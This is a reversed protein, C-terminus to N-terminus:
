LDSETKKAENPILGRARRAALLADEGLRLVPRKEHRLDIAAVDRALLDEAQDLALLRELAQVPRDSPLLLRQNRDLVIDWRRAGVRVLGRLRKILPGAADVLALAEAAAVNAGEGAIVPLDPRDGRSALGAVRHGTADLLTLGDETRWIVAPQREIISVQLVGGSRVELEARAVADLSEARQRLSDLDLHFSSQPLKVAMADRVADALDPSAGEISLLSVRFEPRAQFQERLDVLANAILTRRDESMLVLGLVLAVGFTPVGVRFLVRFLPTLWLRQMKYDWYSPAPDHRRPAGQTQHGHNARRNLPQM